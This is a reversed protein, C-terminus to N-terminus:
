FPAPVAAKSASNRPVKKYKYADSEADTSMLFTRNDNM